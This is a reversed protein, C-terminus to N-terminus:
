TKELSYCNVKAAALSSCPELREGPGEMGPLLLEALAAPDQNQSVDKPKKKIYIM